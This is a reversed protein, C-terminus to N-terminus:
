SACTSVCGGPDCRLHMFAVGREPYVPMRAAALIGRHYLINGDPNCTRDIINQVKWEGTYTIPDFRFNPAPNTIPGPVLQTYTTPDWIFSVEYPAAMWASNVESKTGKTAAASTFAPVETYTGNAYTFRMPFLDILFMFGRYEYQVGMGQLLMAAKNDGMTAFQIDQRETFNDRILADAMEDSTIVTLIPRGGSRVLASGAAGDRLLRMKYANLQAISLPNTAQVAPFANDPGSTDEAATGIPNCPNTGGLVVKYKTSRLYEHRDRIEWEIRTYEALIGSIANLQQQLEFVSRFEEACFDPGEVARRFLQFQRTTSAVSIKDAPPLCAGGEQGDSVVVPSWTPEAVLPATREYTLNNIIQSLGMPYVGRRTFTMWPSIGFNRRYIEGPLFRGTERVVLDSVPGCAM